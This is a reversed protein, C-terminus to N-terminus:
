ETMDSLLYKYQSWVSWILTLSLSASVCFHTFETLSLFVTRRSKLSSLCFSHTERARFGQKPALHSRQIKILHKFCQGPQQLNIVEASTAVVVFSCCSLAAQQECFFWPQTIWAWCWVLVLGFRCCGWSWCCTHTQAACWTNDRETM